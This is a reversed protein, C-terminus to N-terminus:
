HRYFIVNGLGRPCYLCNSCTIRDSGKVQEPCNLARVGFIERFGSKPAVQGKVKLPEDPDIALKYGLRSAESAEEANHVSAYAVVGARKLYKTHPAMEKWAHTYFWAPASVGSRRARRYTLLTAALYTRDLTKM